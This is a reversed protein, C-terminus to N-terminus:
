KFTITLNNIRNYKRIRQKFVTKIPLIMQPVSKHFLAWPLVQVQQLQFVPLKFGESWIYGNIVFFFEERFYLKFEKM